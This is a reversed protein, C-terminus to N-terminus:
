DVSLVGHIRVLEANFHTHAVVFAVKLADDVVPYILVIEFMSTMFKQFLDPDIKCLVCFPTNPEHHNSGFEIVFVGEGTTIPKHNTDVEFPDTRQPEGKDLINQPQGVVLNRDFATDGTRCEVLPPARHHGFLQPVKERGIRRL